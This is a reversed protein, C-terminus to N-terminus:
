YATESKAMEKDKTEVTQGLKDPNDEVEIPEESAIFSGLIDKLTITGVVSSDRDTVILLPLPSDAFQLLAAEISSDESATEVKEQMYDGVLGNSHLGVADRSIVGVVHHSNKSATVAFATQESRHMEDLLKPGIPEERNLRMSKKWPRMYERVKAEEIAIIKGLRLLQNVSIRNDEQRVQRQLLERLDENEYVRTHPGQYRDQIKELYKLAPYSWNLFWIFFPTLKQALKQSFSSAQRNPIWSFALWIWIVALSLGLPLPAKRNFMIVALSSCIAMLLWLFGRFAPFSAAPYIARAFGDGRAAQRKLEYSPLSFYAKRLMLLILAILLCVAATVLDAM